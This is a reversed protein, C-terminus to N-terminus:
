GFHEVKLVQIEVFLSAVALKFPRTRLAVTPSYIQPIEQVNKLSTSTVGLNPHKKTLILVPRQSVMNHIHWYCPLRLAKSVEYETCEHSCFSRMVDGEM